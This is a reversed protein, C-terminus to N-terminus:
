AKVKLILNLRHEQSAKVLYKPIFSMSLLIKAVSSKGLYEYYTERSVQNCIKVILTIIPNSNKYNIIILLHKM